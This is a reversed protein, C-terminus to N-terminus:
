FSADRQASSGAALGTNLRATIYCSPLGACNANTPLVMKWNMFQNGIVSVWEDDAMQFFVGPATAPVDHMFCHDVSGRTHNTFSIIPRTPTVTSTVGSRFLLNDLRVNGAGSALLLTRDAFLNLVNIGSRSITTDSVILSSAGNSVTITPQASSNADFIWGGDVRVDGGTIDIAARAGDNTFTSGSVNLTGALVRLQSNYDFDSGVISGFTMGNASQYLYVGTNNLFTSDTVHLDDLRGSRICISNVNQMAIAQNATMLTNPACELRTIRMSDQADDINFGYNYVSMYIDTFTSGGSNAHAVDGLLSIGDWGNVIWVNSFRMYPRVDARIAVPYHTMMARDTSDPQRFTVAFGSIPATSASNPGAYVDDLQIVATDAMNFTAMNPACAQDSVVIQTDLPSNGVMGVNPALHIKSNIRYKGPSLAVYGGRTTATAGCAVAAADAAAQIAARDDTCGNGTAGFSRPDMAGCDAQAPSPAAMAAAAAAALISRKLLSNM